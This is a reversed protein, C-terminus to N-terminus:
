KEKYNLTCNQGLRTRTRIEMAKTKNTNTELGVMEAKEKLEEMVKERLNRCRAMPYLDDAYGIIQREKNLM